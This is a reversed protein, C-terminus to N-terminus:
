GGAARFRGEARLRAFREVLERMDDLAELRERLKLSGWIRLQARRSGDWTGASWDSNDNTRTEAMESRDELIWQLHQIDDRGRPKRATVKMAILTELSVFRAQLGPAIEGILSRRYEADFDFPMDVFIAVPTERHEESHLNLVTMGKEAILHRRTQEDAFQEVSIPVLPRYGLKALAAFALIVNDSVLAIVLDVDHTFRLYGHANVALGGPVLYCVGADNLAAIIAEFSSLRM